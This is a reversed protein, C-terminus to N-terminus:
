GELAHGCGRGVGDFTQNVVEVLVALNEEGAVVFFFLEAGLKQVAGTQCRPM